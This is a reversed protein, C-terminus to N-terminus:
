AHPTSQSHLRLCSDNLKGELPHDAMRIRANAAPEASDPTLVSRWRHETSEYKHVAVLTGHAPYKTGRKGVKAARNRVWKKDQLSPQGPMTGPGAALIM